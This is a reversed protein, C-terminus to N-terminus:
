RNQYPRRRLLVADTPMITHRHIYTTLAHNPPTTGARAEGHVKNVGARADLDAMFSCCLAKDVRDVQDVNM